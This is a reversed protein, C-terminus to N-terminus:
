FSWGLTIGTVVQPQGAPNVGAALGVGPHPLLRLLLSGRSRKDLKADVSVLNAASARLRANAATLTDVATLLKSREEQALTLGLRLSTITSDQAAIASDATVIIPRCTDPASKVLAALSGKLRTASREASDARAVAAVKQADLAQAQFRLASAAADAIAASKLAAQTSERAAKADARAVDLRSSLSEGGAIIGAALAAVGISIAAKALLKM